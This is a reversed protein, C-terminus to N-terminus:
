KAKLSDPRLKGIRGGPGVAFPPSVANWKGNDLAQWTAGDDRSIDSGNTGVAIWVKAQPYWAVASRYGHPMKGAATWHRGGDSTWAVTGSAEDPKKYDGGVVIGHELDRFAVSFAGSSDSGGALPVPAALCKKKSDNHALLPSLLARPGGKGGTVTIFRQSGFVFVMSNSAAFGSEGERSACSSADKSWAQRAAMIYTEFRGNVPDGILVGTKEAGRSGFDRSQFVLADWFGDKESNGAEEKWHSCGDNTAFVGSLDGLGSSLVRAENANWAWVGRFDLKEGGAPPACLQWHLGGDRTRLITGDAGTAWAIAGDVAHIGRLSATSHSDQMQWQAVAILPATLFAALAVFAIVSTFRMAWM